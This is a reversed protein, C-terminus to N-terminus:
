GSLNDASLRDASPEDSSLWDPEETLGLARLLAKKVSNEAQYALHVWALLEAQNDPNLLRSIRLVEAKFEPM